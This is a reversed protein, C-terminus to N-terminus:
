ALCPRVTSLAEWDSEWATPDDFMEILDEEDEPMQWGFVVYEVLEGSDLQYVVKLAHQRAAEGTGDMISHLDIATCTEITYTRAPTTTTIYKTMTIHGKTHGPAPRKKHHNPPLSAAPIEPLLRMRYAAGAGALGIAKPLRDTQQTGNAKSHYWYVVYCM